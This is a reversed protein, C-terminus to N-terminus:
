QQPQLPPGPPPGMGPGPLFPGGPPLQQPVPAFPNQRGDPLAVARSPTTLLKLLDRARSQQEPTGAQAIERLPPVALAGSRRLLVQAATRTMEDDDGLAAILKSLQETVTIKGTSGFAKAWAQQNDIKQLDTEYQWVKIDKIAITTNWTYIMPQMPKNRDYMNANAAMGLGFPREDIWGAMTGGIIQMRITYWQNQVIAPETAVHGPIAQVTGDPQKTLGCWVVNRTNSYAGFQFGPGQRVGDFMISLDCIKGGIAKATYQVFIDGHVPKGMALLGHSELVTADFILVTRGDDKAYHVLKQPDPWETLPPKAPQTSPATSPAHPTPRTAPKMTDDVFVVRLQSLDVPDGERAKVFDESFTLNWGQSAMMAQYKACQDTLRLYPHLRSPVHDMPLTAPIRRSLEQIRPDTDLPQSVEGPGNGTLVIDWGGDRPQAAAPSSILGAGVVMATVVWCRM